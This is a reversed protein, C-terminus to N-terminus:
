KSVREKYKDLAYRLINEKDRKSIEKFKEYNDIVELIKEKLNNIKKNYIKFILKDNIMEPIGGRDSGIVINDFLLGELVVTPYNEFYVSPVVVIKSRKYFKIVDDHKVWGVFIFRKDNKVKNGLHKRLNGDGVFIFNWDKLNDLDKLVDILIHVGKLEILKGVYLIINEKKDLNGSNEFFPCPNRVVHLNKFGNKEFGKRLTNSPFIYYKIIKIRINSIVVHWIYYFISLIKPKDYFCNEMCKKFNPKLDCKQYNKRFVGWASPCIQGSAHVTQITDYGRIALLVTLPALNYNHLHIVEPNYNRIIKKLKFYLIPNFFFKTSFRIISNKPLMKDIAIKKANEKFLDYTINYIVEAGGGDEFDNIYLIKM